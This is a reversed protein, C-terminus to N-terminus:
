GLAKVRRLAYLIDLYKTTREEEVLSGLEEDIKAQAESESVNPWLQHILQAAESIPM